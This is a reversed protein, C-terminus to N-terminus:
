GRELRIGAGPPTAAARSRRLWSPLFALWSNRPEEFRPQEFRPQEFRPEERPAEFRPQEFRPEEIRPKERPEAFRPMDDRPEEFRPPREVIVMRPKERPIAEIEPERNQPVREEWRRERTVPRLPEGGISPGAMVPLSVEPGISRVAPKPMPREVPRPNQPRPYHPRSPAYGYGYGWPSHSGHWPRGWAWPNSWSSVYWSPGYWPRHWSGWRSGRWGHGYVQRKYM